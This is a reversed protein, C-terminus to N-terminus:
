VFRLDCLCSYGGSACVSARRASPPLLFLLPLCFCLLPHLSLLFPSRTHLLLCVEEQFLIRQQRLCDAEFQMMAELLYREYSNRAVYGRWLKQILIAGDTRHTQNLHAAALLVYQSQIVVDIFRASEHASLM